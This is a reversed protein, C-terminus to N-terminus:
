NDDNSSLSDKVKSLREEIKKELEAMEDSIHSVAAATEAEFFKKPEAVETQPSAPKSNKMIKECVCISDGVLIEGCFKCKRGEFQETKVTIGFGDGVCSCEEGPKLAKKCYVCFDSSEKKNQETMLRDLTNLRDRRCECITGKPVFNGCKACKYTGEPIVTETEAAPKHVTIPTEKEDSEHAEENEVSLLFENRIKIISFISLLMIVVNIICYIWLSPAVELQAGTDTFIAIIFITLACLLSVIYSVVNHINNKFYVCSLFASAVPLALIFALFYAPAFVTIDSVTLGFILKIGAASISESKFFPAFLLVVSVLQLAITVIRLIYENFRTSFGNVRREYKSAMIIAPASGIVPIVTSVFTAFYKNYQDGRFLLGVVKIYSVYILFAVFFLMLFFSM